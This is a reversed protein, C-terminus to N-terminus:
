VLSATFGRNRTSASRSWRMTRPTMREFAYSNETPNRSAPRPREVGLLDCLETIFPQTNAIEKGDAAQWRSIFLNVADSIV